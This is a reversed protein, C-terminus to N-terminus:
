LILMKVVVGLMIMILIAKIYIPKLRQSVRAGFFAGAIGAPAALLLIDWAVFGKIAYVTTAIASNVAIFLASTTLSRRLDLNFAQILIPMLLIGGGIGFISSFCGILFGLMLIYVIRPKISFRLVRMLAPLFVIAAFLKTLIDASIMLSINPGTVAGALSGALFWAMIDVYPAGKRIHTIFSSLGAAVAFGSSTAIAKHIDVNGYVTMILPVFIFGGGIGALGALFGSLLGVLVAAAM